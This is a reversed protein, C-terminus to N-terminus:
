AHDVLGPELVRVTEHTENEINEDTYRVASHGEEVLADQVKPDDLLMYFFPSDADIFNAGEGNLDRENAIEVVEEPTSTYGDFTLEHVHEGYTGAIERDPTLCLDFRGRKPNRAGLDMEKDGSGHYFMESTDNILPM